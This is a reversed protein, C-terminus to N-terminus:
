PSSSVAFCSFSSSSMSTMPLNRFCPYSRSHCFLLDVDLAHVARAARRRYLSREPPNGADLHRRHVEGGLCRVDLVILAFNVVIYDVLRDFIGAVGRHTAGFRVTTTCRGRGDRRGFEYGREVYFAHVTCAAGRRHLARKLLRGADLVGGHVECCLCGLDTVFVTRGRCLLKGFRNLRGTVDGLQPCVIPASRTGGAGGVRAGRSALGGGRSALGGARGVVLHDLIFEGLVLALYAGRAALHPEGPAARDGDDEPHNGMHEKAEREEAHRGVCDAHHDQARRYEKDGTPVGESAGKLACGMECWVHVHEDRHSRKGCKCGADDRHEVSKAKCRREGVEATDGAHDHCEM